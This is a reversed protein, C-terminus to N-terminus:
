TRTSSSSGRATARSTPTSASRAPLRRRVQLHANRRVELLQRQRGVVELQDRDPQDRRADGPSCTTAASVSAPSSRGSIQDTLFTSSFGLTRISTPPEAHQQGPVADHRLAAGARLQRELVWTNNLALIQPRRVLIYDDPDAFRNPETQDATGFYNSCARGDPQVPLLRHAVGQRHVQARGQRHIRRRSPQRHRRRNYNASGNDVDVDPLPLYKLM